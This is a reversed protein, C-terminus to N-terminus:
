IGPIRARAGVDPIKRLLPTWLPAASQEPARGTLVDNRPEVHQDHEVDRVGINVAHAGDGSCRSRFAKGNIAEPMPGAYAGRDDGIYPVRKNGWSRIAGHRRVVFPETRHHDQSRSSSRTQM